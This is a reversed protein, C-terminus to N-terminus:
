YGYYWTKGPLLRIIYFWIFKNSLRHIYIFLNKKFITENRGSRTTLILQRLKNFVLQRLKLSNDSLSRESLIKNFANQLAILHEPTPQRIDITSRGIEIKGRSIDSQDDISRALLFLFKNRRLLFIKKVHIM